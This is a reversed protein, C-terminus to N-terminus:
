RRARFDAAPPRDSFLPTFFAAKNIKREGLCGFFSPVGSALGRTRTSPPRARKPLQFLAYLAAPFPQARSKKLQGGGNFKIFL